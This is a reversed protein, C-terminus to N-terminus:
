AKIKTYSYRKIAYEYAVNIVPASSYPYQNACDRGCHRYDAIM